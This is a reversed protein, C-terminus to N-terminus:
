TCSCCLFVGSNLGAPAWTAGVRPLHRGWPGDSRLTAQACPLLGTGGVFGTDRMGIGMQMQPDPGGPPVHVVTVTVCGLPPQPSLATLRICPHRSTILGGSSQLDM